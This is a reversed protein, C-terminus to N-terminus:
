YRGDSYNAEKLRYLPDYVYNITATSVSQLPAAAVSYNAVVPSRKSLVHRAHIAPANADLLNPAPAALIGGGGGFGTAGTTYSIVLKPANVTSGDYSTVSKRGWSSGTGKLIVSLSNGGQWDARNVVEQVVPGMENLSYWTSAQWQVNSSHSVQQTTLTRQSPLNGTSFTPSDGIAEAAINMSMSVWQSQSSFVELHASTITAGPPITLTNFRLGAYSSTTSSANGLWATSSTTTLSTSDQNVDDSSASVQATITNSGSGGTATATATNSATPTNTPRSTAMPTPTATATATATPPNGTASATPTPTRTATPTNTATATATNTATATPTATPTSATGDFEYAGIDCAAGQPRSVGRQDTAPCAANAGANIAPSGTLLAHTSTQGGNNQLPGLLPNIPSGATGVQDGTTPTFTCGTNNGLLNYGQSTMAGSCDPNLTTPSNDVNGAILTNKLTVVGVTSSLRIGGGNGTDDANSDATNNTITVNTLAGTGGSAITVGGGDGTATNTSITVNTMTLGGSGSIYIGGGSSAANNSITVNTLALTGGSIY